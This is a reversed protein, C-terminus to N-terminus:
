GERSRYLFTVIQARTCPAGPSFRGDGTGGTVGQEAAWQVAGAYYAGSPVDAFTSASGAAPSGAARHLFAATQGRTVVAEPSFTEASTGGTIGKEVAWLVADHYYAGPAVDKFPNEKGSPAPSGAARWLFTVTQARTCPADPSFRGAATGGTIGKEVAWRVADCYYAGPVVDAFSGAPTEAQVKTFSARVTVKAGPMVFTYRDEGAEATEVKRGAATSVSLTKLAYGEEPRVTVTVTEGQKANQPQVSVTGGLVGSPASIDYSSNGAPKNSSSGGSSSGSGSSSGGGSSGGSGTVTVTLPEGRTSGPVFVWNDPGQEEEQMRIVKHTGASGATVRIVHDDDEKGQAVTVGEARIQSIGVPECYWGAPKGGEAQGQYVLLYLYVDKSDGAKLSLTNKLASKYADKWPVGWGNDTGDLPAGSCVLWQEPYIWVGAGIEFSDDRDTRSVDTRFEAGFECGEATVKWVGKGASQSKLSGKGERVTCALNSSVTWRENQMFWAEPNVCVYFASDKLPSCPLDPLYGDTTASPTSYCGLEPLEIRVPLSYGDYVMTCTRGWAANKATLTQKGGHDENAGYVLPASATPTVERYTWRGGSHEMMAFAIEYEDYPTMTIEDGYNGDDWRVVLHTYGRVGGCDVGEPLSMSPDLLNIDREAWGETLGLSAGDKVTLSGVVNLYERNTLGAGSEVTVDGNVMMFGSVTLNAGEALTLSSGEGFILLMDATVASSLTLAGNLIVTSLAGHQNSRLLEELNDPRSGCLLRHCSGGNKWLLFANMGWAIRTWVEDDYESEYSFQGMPVDSTMVAGPNLLLEGQETVLIPKDAKLPAEMTGGTVAVKGTIKIKEVGSNELAAKFEQFNEVEAAGAWVDEALAAMPAAGLVLVASLLAALWKRARKM